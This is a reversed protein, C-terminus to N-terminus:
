CERRCVFVGSELSIRMPGNAGIHQELARTFASLKAGTLVAVATDMSLVYSLIPGAEPVALSDTRVRLDVSEFWNQLQERGTEFGFARAICENDHAFPVEPAHRTLLDALERMHNPGNTSAHFTGEPRLVRRIESLARERDPIHYLTHNAIVADFSGDDYPISQADVVDFDFSRDVDALTERASDVMGSSLDTLTVSWGNPMRGANTKWLGGTGCGLELIRCDDPFGFQDFLWETWSQGATSYRYIQIRASLSSADRYQEPSVELHDAM